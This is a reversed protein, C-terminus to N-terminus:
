KILGYISQVWIQEKTLNFLIVVLHVTKMYM